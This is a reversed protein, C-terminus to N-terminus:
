PKAVAGDGLVQGPQGPAQTKVTGRYIIENFVLSKVVAWLGGAIGIFTVGSVAIMYSGPVAGHEWTMHIGIATAVSMLISLARNLWDSAGHIWPAWKSSKLKQILAVSLASLTIQTSLVNVTTGAIMFDGIGKSNARVSVRKVARETRGAVGVGLGFVKL